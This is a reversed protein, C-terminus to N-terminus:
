IDSSTCAADSAGSPSAAEVGPLSEIREMLQKTLLEVRATTSYSSGNLSVQLTLVNRPDFGPSVHQLTWMSRVLLGAGVLLALSLAVECVVLADRLRQRRVGGAGARGADKLSAGANPNSAHLAPALGFILGTALSVGLAFLLVRGDVAVEDLRPVAGAPAIAKMAKTLGVAIACGAAGGVVALLMAEVVLQGLVRRRSAGLAIRISIEKQRAAARALLLNAVNGAAILLVFGVAALLVVLM